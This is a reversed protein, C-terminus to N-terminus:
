ELRELKANNNQTERLRVGAGGSNEPIFEIGAAELALRMAQVNAQTTNM